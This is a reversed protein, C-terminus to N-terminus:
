NILDGLGRSQEAQVHSVLTDGLRKTQAEFGNVRLQRFFEGAHEDPVTVRIGEALDSTEFEVGDISGLASRVDNTSTM